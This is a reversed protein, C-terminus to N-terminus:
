ARNDMGGPRYDVLQAWVAIGGAAIRYWDWTKALVGVLFLGRGSEASEEANVVRPVTAQGGEDTVTITILGDAYNLSVQVHVGGGTHEVANAVLESTIQVANEVTTAPVEWHALQWDCFQRAAGPTRLDGVAFEQRAFLNAQTTM